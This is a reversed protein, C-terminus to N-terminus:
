RIITSVVMCGLSGNLTKNKSIRVGGMKIGVISAAPDGFSLIIM